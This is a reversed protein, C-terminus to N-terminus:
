SVDREIESNIREQEAKIKPYEEKLWKFHTNIRNEKLKGFSSSSDGSNFYNSKRIPNKFKNTILEEYCVECIPRGKITAFELGCHKSSSVDKFFLLAKAKNGYFTSGSHLAALEAMVEVISKRCVGCYIEIESELASCCDDCLLITDTDGDKGTSEYGWSNVIKYGHELPQGCCNCSPRCSQCPHYERQSM